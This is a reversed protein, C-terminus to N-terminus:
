RRGPLRAGSGASSLRMFNTVDLSPIVVLNEDNKEEVSYSWNYSGTVMIKEDVATFKHHM